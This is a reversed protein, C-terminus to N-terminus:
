GADDPEDPSFDLPYTVTVWGDNPPPAFSLSLLSERVCYAFEPDALTTGETLEVSEVIGGTDADGVITFSFVAKGRANPHTALLTEYCQSALPVFDSRIRTQIYKRDLPVAPPAPPPEARAGVKQPEPPKRGLARYINERLADRRRRAEKSREGDPKRGSPASTSMSASANPLGVAPDVRAPAREAASSKPERKTRVFRLSFFLAAGVVVVVGGIAVWRLRAASSM